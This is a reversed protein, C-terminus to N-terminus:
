DTLFALETDWQTMDPQDAPDTLYWEIRATWEKGDDSMAWEVEHNDAWTLLRGTAGLLDDPHGRHALVAYEGAPFVGAIVRGEGPVAQAVPWGVDIVLEKDMEVVVYSFFPAGSPEVGLRRMYARVEPHLPLIDPIRNMPVRARIALYPQAARHELKPNSSPM